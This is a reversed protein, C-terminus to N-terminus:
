AGCNLCGEDNEVNQDEMKFIKEKNVDIGYNQVSLAPKTRIYYSGTKLGNKWGFFHCSTLEKFSPKDFFLNLSQSQCVFIGREASMKILLKQDIEFSTKYIERLFKPLLRMNQVSGKDYILRDIIDQNWLDLNILDKVLYKNIITFVGSLVNRTYLNSTIAEFSENNGFISSTSATPMLAINLSNRSGHIFLKERLMKWDWMGSLTDESVDWLNFQFKGFSLPSGKYTEYAGYKAALDVSSSVSGYYISEFINKNIEKAKDSTFPIKLLMFVDALGQVGLGIPRHRFNSKSCKETPYFNKDIVKNLNITLNYAYKMLKDYNVRPTLIEWCDTYGGFHRVECNYESFLQPYSEFPKYIKCKLRLEDATEDNIEEYVLGTEDLLSKLLKCYSCDKTTLLKLNGKSMYIYQLSEKVTLLTDWVNNEKRVDPYELYQPLCMSALNCVATEESNSVENIENCLNSSKIIGINQQNNKRNVHDKYSIYPMGHEIQSGIIHEWLNRAKVKKVYRGESVYKLYLNKYEDGYVDTLGYSNDPDMLYWDNDKEICEMFYDSVWLAYFLDRARLEEPGTNKKAELFEYVDGHHPELYIAFSGNRKGSQNIYRSVDNYVKLMPIIGDTTGATKRIYSGKCRINSIHIGIGGSWKSIKACDSITEFIGEVSDDTGLLFCSSLQSHNTAANFLTPTAHTYLKLSMSNYTERISELDDGHIGIAVRLFLHQPREVIKKKKGGDVNVKLLYSRELTKFGFYDLLYDREMVIMDQLEDKYKETIDILEQSVLPALANHVDKNQSLEYVVDYFSEPTNKQHNSIIIRSGLVGYDPDDMVMNMCVQSALNDLETTTIGSFIRSCIKQTVILPDIRSSINLKQLRNTIKDFQVSEKNGSRKIVYM